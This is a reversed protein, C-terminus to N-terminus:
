NKVENINQELEESKNRIEKLSKSLVALNDLYKPFKELTDEKLLKVIQNIVNNYNSLIHKHEM